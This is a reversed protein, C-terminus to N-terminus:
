PHYPPLADPSPLLPPTSTVVTTGCRRPYTGGKRWPLMLTSKDDTFPTGSAHTSSGEGPLISRCISIWLAETKVRRMCMFVCM